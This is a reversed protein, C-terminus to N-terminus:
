MRGQRDLMNLVEALSPCPRSDEEEDECCERYDELLSTMDERYDFDDGSIM